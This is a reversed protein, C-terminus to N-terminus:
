SLAFDTTKVLGTVPVVPVGDDGEVVGEPWVFDPSIAQYYGLTYPLLKVTLDEGEGILRSSLGFDVEGLPTRIIYRPVERGSGERRVGSAIDVIDHLAVPNDKNWSNQIDLGAVYLHHFEIGAERCKYALQQITEPTDNVEGLLPTNNYVTIGVNNLLRTIRRHEDSFEDPLIFQTEIELRKPAAITLRNMSALTAIVEPTFRQPEDNFTQSRLRVANVHLIGNLGQMIGALQVLMEVGDRRGVIVVDTIREDSRIYELESVRCRGDLEVRTVHVRSIHASGTDALSPSLGARKRVLPRLTAISALRNRRSGRHFSRKGLFLSDDGIKAMYQIDITGEDNVRINDLESALPAFEKFYEPTYPTRIWIFGEKEQVPEVAWGSCHWDIKGIPTATCIRPTIRDSLHARLYNGVELGKSIPTWYISNGHIPSCPIFIYHLEAGAGRLLSFLRVLEPGKDNCNQLFPTQVYVTIGNKVLDTIIRLSQPSIEDPHIFHTGIELRKGCDQLELNTRKLYRLVRGDERLFLHPYYGISRTALRLTQVHEVKMLGDIAIALNQRNMFPDGGSILVEKVAPSNQVHSIAVRIDDPTPNEQNRSEKHKRFCFRCYVPCRMNLQFILRNQYMQELLGQHFQGIWTTTHGITDLERAFPLYQYAVMRSVRLQRITHMSLRVPYTEIVKQLDAREAEDIDRNTLNALQQTSHVSILHNGPFVVELIAMLLLHPMPVGGIVVKGTGDSENLRALLETWFGSEDDGYGCASVLRRYKELGDGTQVIELFARDVLPYLALSELFGILTEKIKPVNVEIKEETHNDDFRSM